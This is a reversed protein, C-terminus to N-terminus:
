NRGADEAEQECRYRDAEARETFEDFSIERWGDGDEAVSIFM